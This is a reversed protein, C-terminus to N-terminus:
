TINCILYFYIQFMVRFEIWKEMNKELNSIRVSKKKHISTKLKKDLDKRKQKLGFTITDKVIKSGKLGKIFAQKQLNKSIKLKYSEM